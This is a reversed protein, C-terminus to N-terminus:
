STVNKKFTVICWCSTHQSFQPRCCHVGFLTWFLHKNVHIWLGLSLSQAGISLSDVDIDRMVLMSFGWNVIEFFVDWAHVSVECFCCKQWNDVMWKHHKHWCCVEVNCTLACPFGRHGEYDCSFKNMILLSACSISGRKVNSLGLWWMCGTSRVVLWVRGRRQRLLQELSLWKCENFRWMEKGKSFCYM